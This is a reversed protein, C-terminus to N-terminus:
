KCYYIRRLEDINNTTSYYHSELSLAQKTLYDSKEPQLFYLNIYNINDTKNQEFKRNILIYPNIKPIEDKNKYKM